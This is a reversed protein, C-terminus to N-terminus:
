NKEVYWDKRKLLKKVRFSLAGRVVREENIVKYVVGKDEDVTHNEFLSIEDGPKLERRNVMEQYLMYSHHKEM